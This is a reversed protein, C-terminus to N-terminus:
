TGQPAIAIGSPTITLNPSAPKQPVTAQSPLILGVLTLCMEDLTQEGLVVDIPASLHQEALARQVFPNSLTNDYTCKIEIEDGGGVTPLEDIPVDYQYSRQWDFNWDSNVLCEDAPESGPTSRHIRMELRTGLYHEHPLMNFMPVRVSPDGPIAFRMTETHAGKFAPIRFEVGATDDPDPLLIPAAGVNGWGGLAYLRDPPTPTLRLDVATADPENDNGAPHYHIQMLVGSGAPLLVAVGEPVETPGQGPTWASIASTMPIAGCPLPKGVVDANHAAQVITPDVTTIVVHHVVSRNGPVVDWGTMYMDTAIEPDLVFCQFQDTTGTTVFPEVPVLSHTVNTLHDEVGPTLEALEGAIRGDDIWARLVDVEDTTLRPDHKWARTPACDPATNASWPPMQGSEVAQLMQPAYIAADDYSELSFPAIGGDHHCGMCHEAVIPGADQYWTTKAPPPPGPDPDSVVDAGCGMLAFLCVFRRM